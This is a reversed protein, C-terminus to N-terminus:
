GGGGRSLGYQYVEGGGGILLIHICTKNKYVGGKLGICYDWSHSNIFVVITLGWMALNIVENRNHPHHHNNDNCKLSTKKKVLSLYIQKHEKPIPAVIRM